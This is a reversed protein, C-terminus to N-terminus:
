QNAISVILGSAAAFAWPASTGTAYVYNSGGAIQTLTARHATLKTVFYTNAAVDTAVISMENANLDATAVLKCIATGDSTRVKYRRTSVQRLIDGTTVESGAGVQAEFKIANPRASGNATLARTGPVGSSGIPAFTLSGSVAGDHATAVTVQTTSDVSSVIVSNAANGTGLGASGTVQM